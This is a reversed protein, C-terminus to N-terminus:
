QECAKVMEAFIPKSCLCLGDDWVLVDIAPPDGYPLLGSQSARLGEVGYLDKSDPLLRPVTGSEAIAAFFQERTLETPRSM